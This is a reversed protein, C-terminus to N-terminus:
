EGVRFHIPAVITLLLLCIIISHFLLCFIACLELWLNSFRVLSASEGKGVVEVHFKHHVSNWSNCDISGETVDFVWIMLHHVHTITSLNVAHVWAVSLVLIASAVLASHVHKAILPISVEDAVEAYDSDLVDLQSGSKKVTFMKAFVCTDEM